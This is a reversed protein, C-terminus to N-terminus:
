IYSWTKKIPKNREKILESMQINLDRNDVKKLIWYNNPMFLISLNTLTLLIEAIIQVIM